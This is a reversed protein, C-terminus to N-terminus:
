LLSISPLWNRFHLLMKEKQHKLLRKPLSSPILLCEFVSFKKRHKEEDAIYMSSCKSSLECYIKEQWNLMWQQQWTKSGVTAGGTLLNSLVKVNLIHYSIRSLRWRDYLILLDEDSSSLPPAPSPPGSIQRSPSCSVRPTVWPGIGVSIELILAKWSM